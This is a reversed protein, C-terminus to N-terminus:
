TVPIILIQGPYILNPNKIKDKNADLIVTYKSGDGYLKKAIHWLCDGKEVTYSKVEPASEAPRQEESSMTYSNGENDFTIDVIKTGYDRYQKLRVSVIVDFGEKADEKITYEELSVKIDNSFLSDETLEVKGVGNEDFSVRHVGNPFERSVIFQFPKQSVKLEELKNTYYSSKQFGNPYIAFPYKVNPLLADFEINTLGPKKLLNVEADNILTMTKNQNEIKLQLKSPAIPLLMGDLYFMYAM